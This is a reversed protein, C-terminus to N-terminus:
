GFVFVRWSCWRGSCPLGSTNGAAVTFRLWSGGIAAALGVAVLM